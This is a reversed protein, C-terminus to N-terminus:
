PTVPQRSLDRALRSLARFQLVRVAGPRKGTIAAVEPGTFGGIVRLLVVEAQDPPLAAVRQLAAVTSIEELAEEEVNGTWGQEPLDEPPVPHTRHRIDRRRADLLRRRAITFVWRRFGAEDGKFRMLGEAVGLWTESALDEADGPRQASLYRLVLPQLDRYLTALAWESGGRAALLVSPFQEGLAM